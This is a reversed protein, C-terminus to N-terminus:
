IYTRENRTKIEEISIINVVEFANFLVRFRGIKLRHTYKHNQLHKVNAAAPFEGLTDVAAIIDKRIHQEKIKKIQKKARPQWVIDNM